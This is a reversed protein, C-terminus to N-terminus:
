MEITSIDAIIFNDVLAGKPGLSHLADREDNAGVLFKNLTRVDMALPCSIVAFADCFLYVSHSTWLSVNQLVM